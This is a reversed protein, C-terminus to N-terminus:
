AQAEKADHPVASLPIPEHDAGVLIINAAAIAQLFGAGSGLAAMAVVTAKRQTDDLESFLQFFEQEISSM